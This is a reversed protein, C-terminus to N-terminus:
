YFIPAIQSTERISTFKRGSLFLNPLLIVSQGYSIKQTITLPSTPFYQDHWFLQVPECMEALIRYTVTGTLASCPLSGLLPISQCSVEGVGASNWRTLLKM